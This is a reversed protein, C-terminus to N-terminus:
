WVGPILRFRVRTQYDAYGALEARLFRDESWTKLLHTVLLGVFALGNWWTPFVLATGLYMLLAATYIPHRVFRYPGTDVVQHNPQLMTDAAWFKGLYHRCYFTGTMGSVTLLAGIGKLWVADSAGSPTVWGLSILMGTGFLTLVLGVIALLLVTDLRSNATAAHKVDRAILRGGGWYFVLWYVWCFLTFLHFFTEM